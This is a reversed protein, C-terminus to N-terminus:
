TTSKQRNIWEVIEADEVRAARRNQGALRSLRKSDELNSSRIARGALRKNVPWGVQLLVTDCFWIRAGRHHLAARPQPMAMDDSLAAIVGDLMARFPEMPLLPIGPSSMNGAIAEIELLGLYVADLTGANILGESPILAYETAAGDGDFGNPFVTWRQRLQTIRDDFLKRFLSSNVYCHFFFVDILETNIDAYRESSIASWCQTPAQWGPAHKQLWQWLPRLIEAGGDRGLETNRIAQVIRGDWVDRYWYLASATLSNASELHMANYLEPSLAFDRKDIWQQNRREWSELLDLKNRYTRYRNGAPQDSMRMLITAMSQLPTGIAYDPSEELEYLKRRILTSKYAHHLQAFDPGAHVDQYAALDAISKGVANRLVMGDHYIDAYPDTPNENFAFMDKLFVQDKEEAQTAATLANRASSLTVRTAGDTPYSDKIWFNLLAALDEQRQEVHTADVPGGTPPPMINAVFARIDSPLIELRNRFFAHNAADHERLGQTLATLYPTGSSHLTSSARERRNFSISTSSQAVASYRLRIAATLPSIPVVPFRQDATNQVANPGSSRHQNAGALWRGLAPRTAAHAEKGYHISNGRIM